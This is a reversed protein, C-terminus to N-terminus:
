GGKVFWLCGDPRFEASCRFQKSLHPSARWVEDKQDPLYDRIPVCLSMGDWHGQLERKLEDLVQFEVLSYLCPAKENVQGQSSSNMQKRNEV